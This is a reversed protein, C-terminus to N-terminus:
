GKYRYLRNNLIFKLVEDKLSRSIPIVTKGIVVEEGDIKDIKSVSVIFSKQIRIFAKEPLYSEISKLSSYTIVKKSETQIIIYNQLAEIFLIDDTNIKEYKNESKVFFYDPGAENQKEQVPNKMRGITKNVAQLFREFSVPKLLYDEADFDFAQVAYNAYATTLIVHYKGQITKLFDVGNIKPLNIDLFILDIKEANLFASASVVDEFVGALSLGPVERIYGSLLESAPKEDEIIICNLISM